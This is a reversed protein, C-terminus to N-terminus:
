LGRLIEVAKELILDKDEEGPKPEAPLEVKVDPELGKGNIEYGKPTIWKAITIKLASDGFEDVEQVSGKGFSKAGILQIGRVDRLAGALIESASASGENMLVVTPVRELLGYGASRFIIDEGKAPRQRVVEQGAPLFWSAIDVSEDLYGGPDNRLDIILKKSGTAFFEDVARRFEASASSAFQTIRIVFIGDAKKETRVIEVRITDRKIKFEKPQTFSDRMILLRVETGKPGKIKSVAETLTLENTLTDDIRLVKDGAKIGAHEAPSNRLPAVITLIGKKISIEAGIGEFSGRVEDNFQKKEVPPLFETYPDQLAGVLGTIAGYMLKQRDISSRDVYREELTNWVKWFLEMDVEKLNEPTEKHLVNAIRDIAPRREYGYWVGISFSAGLIAITLVITLIKTIRSSQNDFM